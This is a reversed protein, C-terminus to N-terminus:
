RSNPQPRIPPVARGRRGDARGSVDICMLIAPVTRATRTRGPYRVRVAYARIDVIIEGCVPRATAGSPPTGAVFGGVVVGGLVDGDVVGDVVGGGVLVAGVAGGLVVDGVVGGVPPRCDPAQVAAYWNILLQPVPNWAFTVTVFATDDVSLPQVTRSVSAPPCLMLLTHFPTFVPVVPATTMLFAAYLPVM